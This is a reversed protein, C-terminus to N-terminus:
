CATSLFVRGTPAVSVFCWSVHAACHIDTDSVALTAAMTAARGCRELAWADYKIDDAQM